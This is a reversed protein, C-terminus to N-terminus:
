EPPSFGVRVWVAVVVSTGLEVGNACVRVTVGNRVGLGVADGVRDVDLVGVRWGSTGPTEGDSVGQGVLVGTRGTTVTDLYFCCFRQLHDM